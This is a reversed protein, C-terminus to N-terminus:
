TELSSRQIEDDGSSREKSVQKVLRSLHEYIEALGARDDLLINYYIKRANATYFPPNENIGDFPIKHEICYNKVFDEDPNATFIILHCGIAKLNKLLQIVKPFQWGNQHYDYVTNDFDYAVVLSFYQKYETLLRQYTHEKTLYYDMM